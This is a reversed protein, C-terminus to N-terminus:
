KGVCFRSFIESVIKESATEGTIEGIDNLAMEIDMVVVDATMGDRLSGIANKVANEARELARAQRINTIVTREASEQMHYRRHIEECLADIGEGTKASIPFADIGEIEKKEIDDKNRIVIRDRDKTAELLRKDEETLKESGDLVLLVGVAEDMAEYAKEIGIQEVQDTAEWIGATDRLLYTNGEIQIRAEVIDRTTGPIATVIARDKGCLANLLSSKGTNPRGVIVLPTGEKLFRGREYSRRLEGLTKEAKVLTEETESILFPDLEEDPFDVVAYFHAAVGLLSDKIELLKDSLMGKLQSAANRVSAQSDAEILDIVAEANALDMKGNLFARKTFEGPKAPEAGSAYLQRLIERILADSGHCYIEVMDEGTYTGPNQLYVAMCLDLLEGQASRFEGYIMKHSQPPTERFARFHKQMIPLSESGSMRIIGIAGIGAATSCAAITHEVDTKREMFSLSRRDIGGTGSNNNKKARPRLVKRRAPRRM